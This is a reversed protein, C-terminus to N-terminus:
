SDFQGINSVIPYNTTKKEKLDKKSFSILNKTWELHIDIIIYMIFM